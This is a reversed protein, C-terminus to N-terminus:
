DSVLAENWLQAIREAVEKPLGYGPYASDNEWGDREPSPSVTWVSYGAREDDEVDVAVVYLPADTDWTLGRSEVRM